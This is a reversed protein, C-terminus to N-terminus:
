LSKWFNFFPIGTGKSALKEGEDLLETMAIRANAIYPGSRELAGNGALRYAKTLNDKVARLLELAHQAKAPNPNVERLYETKEFFPWLAAKIERFRIEHQVGDAAIRMALEA